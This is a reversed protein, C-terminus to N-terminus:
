NSAEVNKSVKSVGNVKTVKITNDSFDEFVDAKHTCFIIQRKKSLLKLLRGVNYIKGDSSVSKFAEDLLAPGDYKVWDLAAFRLSFSTGESVGGGREDKLGTIVKKGQFDSEIGIEMKFAASNKKEENRLFHVKYDEGCISRLGYTATKEISAIGAERRHSIFSLLLLYAEKKNKFNESNEDIKCKLDACQKEVRQRVGSKTALDFTLSQVKNHLNLQENL